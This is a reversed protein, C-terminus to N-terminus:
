PSKRLGTLYNRGLCLVVAASRCHYWACTLFFVWVLFAARGSDPCIYSKWLYVSIIIIIHLICLLARFMSISLCDPKCVYHSKVLSDTSLGNIHVPVCIYFSFHVCMCACVYVYQGVTKGTEDYHKTCEYIYCTLDLKTEVADIWLFVKKNKSKKKQKNTKQPSYTYSYSVIVWYKGM